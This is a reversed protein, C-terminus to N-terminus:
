NFELIFQDACFFFGHVQVLYKLARWSQKHKLQCTVGSVTIYNFCQNLYVASVFPFLLVIFKPRTELTTVLRNTIHSIFFFHFAKLLQSLTDYRETGMTSQVILWDRKLPTVEPRSSASSCCGRCHGITTVM